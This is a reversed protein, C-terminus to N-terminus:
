HILEAGQFPPIARHEYGMGKRNMSGSLNQRNSTFVLDPYKRVGSLVTVIQLIDVIETFSKEIYTFLKSDSTMNGVAEYAKAGNSVFEKHDFGMRSIYEPFLGSFLLYQEALQQVQSQRNLKKDNLSATSAILSAFDKTAGTTSMRHLLHVLYAEVEHPLILSYEAQAKGLLLYWSKIEQIHLKM